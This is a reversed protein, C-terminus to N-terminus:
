REWNMIPFDARGKGEDLDESEEQNDCPGGGLIGVTAHRLRGMRRVQGGPGGHVGALILTAPQRPQRLRPHRRGGGGRRDHRVQVVQGAGARQRHPFTPLRLRHGKTRHRGPGAAFRCRHRYPRERSYHLCSIM